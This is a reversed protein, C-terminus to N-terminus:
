CSPVCLIQDGAERRQKQRAASTSPMRHRHRGRLAAQDAIPNMAVIFRAVAASPDRTSRDMETLDSRVDRHARGAANALRKTEGTSPPRPLRRQVYANLARKGVCITAIMLAARVTSSVFLPSRGSLPPARQPTGRQDRRKGGLWEEEGVRVTHMILAKVGFRKRRVHRRTLYGAGVATHYLAQSLISLRTRCPPLCLLSGADHGRCSRRSSSIGDAGAAAPSPIWACSSETCEHPRM